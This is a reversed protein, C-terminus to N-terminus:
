TSTTFSTSSHYRGRPPRMATEWPQPGAEPPKEQAALGSPLTASALVCTGSAILLDRRTPARRPEDMIYARKYQADYCICDRFRLDNSVHEPFKAYTLLVRSRCLIFTM